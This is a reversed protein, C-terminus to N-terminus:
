ELLAVAEKAKCRKGLRIALCFCSHQDIVKVFTPRRGYATADFQLGMALFQYPHEAQHRRM